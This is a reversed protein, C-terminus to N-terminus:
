FCHKSANKRETTLNTEFTNGTSKNLFYCYLGYSSAVLFSNLLDDIIQATLPPPLSWIQIIFWYVNSLVFYPGMFLAPILGVCCM